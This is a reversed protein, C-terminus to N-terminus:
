SLEKPYAFLCTEILPHYILGSMKIIEIKYDLDKIYEDFLPKLEFFEKPNHYIAITIVPRNNRIINRMGILGNYGAGEIDLKVFGINLGNNESFSDLDTSEVIINGKSYISNRQKLNDEILFGGKKDNIAMKVIEIKNKDLNNLKINNEFEQININSFEFSYIKKPNYQLLVMASDGVYAGGDIFDKGKIYDKLKKNSFRLGHHFYFVDQNYSKNTTFKYKNKYESIECQYSKNINSEFDTEYFKQVDKFVGYWCIQNDLNPFELLRKYLINVTNISQEDLNEKLKSLKYKMDNSFIYDKFNGGLFNWIGPTNWKLKREICILQKPLKIKFNLCVLHCRIYNKKLVISFLSKM